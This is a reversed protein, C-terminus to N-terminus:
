ETKKADKYNSANIAIGVMLIYSLIYLWILLIIINALSGYIKSYDALNTAYYSYIASSILWAITTFLAGRTTSSSKIRSDPSVTYLIKIIMYILVLAIPWKALSFLGVISSSVNFFDLALRLINNGFVLIILNIIIVLVVLLTLFLAKIRRSIYAAFGFESPIEYIMNSAIIIANPGSSAAWIGALIVIINGWTNNGLFSIILSLVNEPIVDGIKNFISSPSLHFLGSITVIISLIPILSVMLSYTFNGPLIRMYPQLCLNIIKNIKNKIKKM